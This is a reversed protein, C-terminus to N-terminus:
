KLLAISSLGHRQASNLLQGNAKVQAVFGNITDLWKPQGKAVAYAYKTNALPVSPALLIAWKTLTVMRKGYPYDTLFADARGSLVDQERAKFSDVVSVSAKKFAQKAVPEMYTGKQVAVINGRQDIDAWREIRQNSKDVVAYVGSALYPQSFDMFAKRSERVGIGHMAIDCRDTMLNQQLTSFSSEIFELSVGLKSALLQAMDIDLGEPVRTRPNRYSIAFYDPWICVKLVNAQQIQMLRTDALVPELPLFIGLTCVCSILKNNIM